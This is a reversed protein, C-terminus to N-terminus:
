CVKPNCTSPRPKGIRLNNIYSSCKYYGSGIQKCNMRNLKLSSQVDLNEVLIYNFVIINSIALTYISKKFLERYSSLNTGLIVYSFFAFHTWRM